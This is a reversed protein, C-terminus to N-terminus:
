YSREQGLHNIFYQLFHEDLRHSEKLLPLQGEGMLNYISLASKDSGDSDRRGQLALNPDLQSHVKENIFTKVIQDLVLQDEKDTIKGGYNLTGILYQLLQDPFKEQYAVSRSHTM